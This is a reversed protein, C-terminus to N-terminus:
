LEDLSQFPSPFKIWPPRCRLFMIRNIIRHSINNPFIFPSSKYSIIQIPSKIILRYVDGEGMAKGYTDRCM